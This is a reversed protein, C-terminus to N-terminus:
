FGRPPCGESESAAAGVYRIVISDTRRVTYRDELEADFGRVSLLLDSEGEAWLLLPGAEAFRESKAQGGTLEKLENRKVEILKLVTPKFDASKGNAAMELQLLSALKSEVVLERWTFNGRSRPCGMMPPLPTWSAGSVGLARCVQTGGASPRAPGTPALDRAAPGRTRARPAPSGSSPPGPRGPRPGGRRRGSWPRARRAAGVAAPSGGAERLAHFRLFLRPRTREPSRTSGGCAKPNTLAFWAM